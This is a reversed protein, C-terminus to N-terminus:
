RHKLHSFLTYLRYYVGPLRHLMQLRVRLKRPARSDALLMGRERLALQRLEPLRDTFKQHLLILDICNCTEVAARRAAAPYVAPMGHFTDLLWRAADSRGLQKQNLAQHTASADHQLYFYGEFAIRRAAKVRMCAKMTFQMDESVALSRDFRLDGVLERRFLKTCVSSVLKNEM